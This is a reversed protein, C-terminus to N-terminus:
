VEYFDGGATELVEDIDTESCLNEEYWARLETYCGPFFYKVATCILILLIVTVAQAIIIKFVKDALRTELIDNEDM